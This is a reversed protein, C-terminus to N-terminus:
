NSGLKQFPLINGSAQQRCFSSSYKDTIVSFLNFKPMFKQAPIDYNIFSSSQACCAKRELEQSPSLPGKLGKPTKLGKKTFVYVCVFMCFYKCVYM